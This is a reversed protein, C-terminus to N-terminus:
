EHQYKQDTQLKLIVTEMAALSTFESLTVYYPGEGGILNSFADALRAGARSLAPHLGNQLYDAVRAGQGENSNHFQWTTLELYVAPVAAPNPEMLSLSFGTLSAIAQRRYM